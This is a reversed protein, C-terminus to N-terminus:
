ASVIELCLIRLCLQVCVYELTLQAQAILDINCNLASVNLLHIGNVLLVLRLSCAVYDHAGFRITYTM